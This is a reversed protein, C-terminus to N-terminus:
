VRIYLDINQNLENEKGVEIPFDLWLYKRIIWQICGFICFMNHHIPQRVFRGFLDQCVFSKYFTDCVILHKSSFNYVVFTMDPHFTLFLRRLSHILENLSLCSSM